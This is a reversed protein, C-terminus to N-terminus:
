KWLWPPYIDLDGRLHRALMQAQLYPVLGLPAKAELFPHLREEKKREQWATLVTRRGADTLVKELRPLLQRIKAAVAPNSTLLLWGLEDVPGAQLQGALAPPLHPRVLAFREGSERLRRQLSELPACQDLVQGLPRAQPAPKEPPKIYYAM